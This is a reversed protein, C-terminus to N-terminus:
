GGSVPPLIALEDHSAATAGAGVPDGNLWLQCTPLLACLGDGYRARMHALIEGVSDGEIQASTEGAAERAPGFFLVRAM